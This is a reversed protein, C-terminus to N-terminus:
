FNFLHNTTLFQVLKQYQDRTKLWYKFQKVITVSDNQMIFFQSHSQCFELSALTFLINAQLRKYNLTGNWIRVEVTRSNSLNVACYRGSRSNEFACYQEIQASTRMSFDTIYYNLKNYFRQFLDANHKLNWEVKTRYTIRKTFWEIREIHIHFGCTKSDHSHAGALSLRKVLEHLKRERLAQRKHPTLIIEFGDNLSGDHSAIAYGQLHEGVLKALSNISGNRETDREIELELGLYPDTRLDTKSTIFEWDVTPHYDTIASSGNRKLDCGHSDLDVDDRPNCDSCEAYHSDYCSSCMSEGAGECYSSDDSTCIDGCGCTIYHREYCTQCLTYNSDSQINDNHAVRNCRECESYNDDYCSQCVSIEQGPIFYTSDSEVIDNCDNCSCFKESYCDECYHSNEILHKNDEAEIASNCGSCNLTIQILETM